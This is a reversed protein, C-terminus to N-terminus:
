AAVALLAALDPPNQRLRADALTRRFLGSTIERVLAARMDRVSVDSKHRHWPADLRSRALDAERHGDRFYWLFTLSYAVGALPATRTAAPAGRRARPRTMPRRTEARIGPRRRWFGNQPDEFGLDQKLDRFAVELLWRQAYLAAITEPDLDPDTSVFARTDARGKPDRTIVVRVPRTGASPYWICVLTIIHLPVPRGHLHAVIPTWKRTSALTQPNAIRFGKLRRRGTAPQASPTEYLAAAMPLPGVFRVRPPLARLVTRCCYASDGVVVLRRDAPLCSALRSILEVALDTRRRYLREPCRAKPRYLRFFAPLAWSRERDWPCRVRLALVVWSHGFGFVTLRHGRRDYGSRAGDHHVGTGFIQGGCKHCLTDDVVLLIEDGLYPLLLRVLVAGLDDISWRGESLFRYFSAHHVSHGLTRAVQYIRTLRHSGRVLLWSTITAAFHRFGPETFCGGFTSLLGHLASPICHSQM